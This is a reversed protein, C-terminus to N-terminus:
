KMFHKFEAIKQKIARNMESDAPKMLADEAEIRTIVSAKRHTFYCKEDGKICRSRQGGAMAELTEGLYGVCLYNCKNVKTGGKVVEKKDGKGGRGQRKDEQLPPQKIIPALDDISGKGVDRSAPKGASGGQARTTHRTILTHFDEKQNRMTERSRMVNIQYEMSATIAAAVDFPGRISFVTGNSLRMDTASAVANSVRVMALNFNFAIQDGGMSGMNDDETIFMIFGAFVRDYDASMFAIMLYNLRKIVLVIGSNHHGCPTAKLSRSEGSINEFLSLTLGDIVTWKFALLNSLVEISRLPATGEVLKLKEIGTWGVITREDSDLSWHEFAKKQFSEIDIDWDNQFVFSWRSQHVTLLVIAAAESRNMTDTKNYSVLAVNLQPIRLIVAGKPPPVSYRLSAMRRANSTGDSNQDGYISLMYEKGESEIGIQYPDEYLTNVESRPQRKSSLATQRLSECQQQGAARALVDMADVGEEEEEEGEEMDFMDRNRKSGSEKEDSELEAKLLSQASRIIARDIPDEGVFQYLGDMDMSKFLPVSLEGVKRAIDTRVGVKALFTALNNKSGEKRARGNDAPSFPQNITHGGGGGAVGHENYSISSQSM